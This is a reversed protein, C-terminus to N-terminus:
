RSKRIVIQHWKQGKRLAGVDVDSSLNFLIDAITPPRRAQLLGEIDM